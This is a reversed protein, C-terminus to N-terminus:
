LTVGPRVISNGVLLGVGIALAVVFMQLLQQVGLSTQGVTIAALGRFGISGSVLLMALPAMMISTPRGTRRNWINILVVGVAASCLTGWFVGATAPVTAEILFMVVFAIGVIIMTMLVDAHPTQFAFCLAALMPVLAILLWVIGVSRGAIVEPVSLVMTVLAYGLWVGGILKALYLLGNMLNATGSLVRNSLLELVGISIPYGPVLIILACVATVIPNIEPQIIRSVAVLVGTVLAVLFPLWAGARWRDYRGILGMMCFTILGLIGGAAVDWASGGIMTAFGAGAILFSAGVLFSGWPDPMRDVDALRKHADAITLQGAEVASTLEGLAALRSLNWGGAPVPALEMRQWSDKDESFAFLIETPTTRFTGGFGMTSALHALYQDIRSGSSGYRHAAKGVDIIFRCAADFEKGHQDDASTM